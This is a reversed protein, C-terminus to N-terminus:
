YLQMGVNSSVGACMNKQSYQLLKLFLKKGLGGGVAAESSLGANFFFNM